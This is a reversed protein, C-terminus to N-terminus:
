LGFGATIVLSSMRLARLSLNRLSVMWKPSSESFGDGALGRPPAEPSVRSVAVLVVVVM